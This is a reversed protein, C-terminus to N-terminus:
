LRKKQPGNQPRLNTTPNPPNLQDFPFTWQPILKIANYNHTYTPIHLTSPNYLKKKSSTQNYRPLFM